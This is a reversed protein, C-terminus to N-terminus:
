GLALGEGHVNRPGHSFAQKLVGLLGLSYPLFDMAPFLGCVTEFKGVELKGCVAGPKKRQLNTITIL